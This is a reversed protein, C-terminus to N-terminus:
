LKTNLNVSQNDHRFRCKGSMFYLLNLRLLFSVYSINSFNYRDKGSGLSEYDDEGLKEYVNDSQDPTWPQDDDDQVINENVDECSHLDDMDDLQDAFGSEDEEDCTQTDILIIHSIYYTLIFISKSKRLNTTM